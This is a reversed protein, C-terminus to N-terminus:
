IVTGTGFRSQSFGQLPRLVTYDWDRGVTQKCSSCWGSKCTDCEPGAPQPSVGNVMAVPTTRAADAFILQPREITAFTKSTGDTFNITGSYPELEGSFRWDFGDKSFAHGSYRISPWPKRTWVHYIIHFNGRRDFWLRPDEWGGPNKHFTRKQSWPGNWSPASAISEKCGM